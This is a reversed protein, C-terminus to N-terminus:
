ERVGTEVERQRARIEDVTTCRSFILFVATHFYNKVEYSCGKRWYNWDGTSHRDSWKRANALICNKVFKKLAAVYEKRFSEDGFDGKELFRDKYRREAGEIGWLEKYVNKLATVFTDRNTDSGIQQHLHDGDVRAYVWVSEGVPRVYWGSFAEESQGENIRGPTMRMTNNWVNTSEGHSTFVGLSAGEAHSDEGVYIFRADRMNSNLYNVTNSPAYYEELGPMSGYFNTGVCIVEHEVIGSARVM